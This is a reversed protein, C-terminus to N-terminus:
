GAPPPAARRAARVRMVVIGVVILALPFGVGILAIQWSTLGTAAAQHVTAQPVLAVPARRHLGAPMEQAFAAPIGVASALLGITVAAAAAALRSLRTGARSWATHPRTRQRSLRAAPALPDHRAQSHLGALRGPYSRFM